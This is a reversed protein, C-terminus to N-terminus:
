APPKGTTQRYGPPPGVGSPRDPATPVSRRVAEDNHLMFLGAKAPTATSRRHQGAFCAGAGGGDIPEGIRSVGSGDPMLSRGAASLVVAGGSREGRAVIEARETM